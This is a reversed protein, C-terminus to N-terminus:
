EVFIFCGNLIESWKKAAGEKSDISVSSMEKDAANSSEPTVDKDAEKTQALETESASASHIRIAKRERLKELEKAAAHM